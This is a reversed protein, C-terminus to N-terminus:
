DIRIPLCYNGCFTTKLFLIDAVIESGNTFKAFLFVNVKDNVLKQVHLAKCYDTLLAIIIDVRNKSTLFYNCYM